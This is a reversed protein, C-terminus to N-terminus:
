PRAAVARRGDDSEGLRTDWQTGALSIGTKGLGAFALAGADVSRLNRGESTVGFVGWKWRAPARLSVGGGMERRYVELKYDAGAL